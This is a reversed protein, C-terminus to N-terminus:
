NAGVGKNAKTLGVRGEGQASTMQLHERLTCISMLDVRSESCGVLNDPLGEAYKELNKEFKKPSPACM